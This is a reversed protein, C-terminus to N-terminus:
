NRGGGEAKLLLEGHLRHLEAEWVHEGTRKTLELGETLATLGMEPQRAKGCADALLFLYQNRGLEHGLARWVELGQRLQESGMESQGELTLAWGRYNMTLATWQPFDQQRAFAITEEARRRTEPVERRLMHGVTVYALNEQQCQPCQM